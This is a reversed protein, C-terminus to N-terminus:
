KNRKNYEKHLDFVALCKNEVICNSKSRLYNNLETCSALKNLASGAFIIFKTGSRYLRKIRDIATSGNYSSGCLDLFSRHYRISPLKNYREDDVLVLNEEKQTINSIGDVALGLQYGCSTHKWVEMNIKIGRESFFKNLISFLKNDSRHRLSVKKHWAENSFNNNNHKRYLGQSESIRKVPGFAQAMTCLYVDACIKFVDEPMPLVKELFNRTWANGTTSQHFCCSPGYNILIERLDGEPLEYSPIIDGTKNNHEDIQCLPWHVNAVGTESILNVAKEVTTPLLMDDSDLFLIIDGKSVKFGANIASGQGNNEKLVPIISSGYNAIVEQSNDTSGDDVVIVEIKQYTQDLASELADKLFRGYNYNNIIISVLPLNNSM